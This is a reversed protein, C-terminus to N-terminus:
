SCCNRSAYSLIFKQDEVGFYGCPVSGSIIFLEHLSLVSPAQDDFFHNDDHDTDFPMNDPLSNM